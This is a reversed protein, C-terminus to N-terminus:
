CIFAAKTLTLSKKGWLCKFLGNFFLTLIWEKSLNIDTAAKIVNLYAHKSVSWSCNPGNIWTCKNWHEFYHVATKCQLKWLETLVFNSQVQHRPIYQIGSLKFTIHEFEALPFQCVRVKIGKFLINSSFGLNRKLNM